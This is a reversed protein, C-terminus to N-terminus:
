RSNATRLLGVWGVRLTIYQVRVSRELTKECFWHVSSMKELGGEEQGSGTPGGAIGVSLFASWSGVLSHEDVIATFAWLFVQGAIGVDFVSSMLQVLKPDQLIICQEHGVSCMGALFIGEEGGHGAWDAAQRQNSFRSPGPRM